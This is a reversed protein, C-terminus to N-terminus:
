WGYLNPLPWTRTEADPEGYVMIESLDVENPKPIGQWYVYVYRGSTGPQCQYEKIQGLSVPPPTCVSLQGAVSAEMVSYPTDGLGIHVPDTNPRM